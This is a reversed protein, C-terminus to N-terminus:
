NSKSESSHVKLEYAMFKPVVNNIAKMRTFHSMLSLLRTQMMPWCRIIKGAKENKLIGKIDATTKHESLLLRTSYFITTPDNKVSDVNWQFM